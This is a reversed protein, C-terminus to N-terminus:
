VGIVTRYWNETRVEGSLRNARWGDVEKGKTPSFGAEFEEMTMPAEVIKAQGPLFFDELNATEKVEWNYKIWLDQSKTSTRMTLGKRTSNTKNQSGNKM